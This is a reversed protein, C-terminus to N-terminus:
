LARIAVVLGAVIAMAGTVRAVADGRPSLKELAIIVAIAAMAALNMVGIALQILMLAWCCAACYRGHHAGLRFTGWWGPRWCAAFFSLPSRCHSLCIRKWPTVQYIGALAIAGGTAAPVWQSVVEFRMAANSLWMGIAYAVVGFALWAAFYGGLLVGIPAATEGRRRRGAALGRYLLAMPMASPLMMAIMMVQWMVLFMVAAQVPTQGPMLMWAMSMNWGGPMPMSGSMQQAGYITAAWCAASVAL